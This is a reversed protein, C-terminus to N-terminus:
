EPVPVSSVVRVSPISWTSLGLGHLAHQFCNAYDDSAVAFKVAKQATAIAFRPVMFVHGAVEYRRDWRGPPRTNGAMNDFAFVMGCTSDKTFPMQMKGFWEKDRVMRNAPIVAVFQETSNGIDRDICHNIGHSSQMLQWAVGRLSSLMASVDGIKEEPVEGDVCVTLKHELPTNAEITAVCEELLSLNEMSVPVIIGLAQQSVSRNKPEKAPSSSNTASRPASFRDNNEM